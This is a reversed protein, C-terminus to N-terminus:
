THERAEKSIHLIGLFKSVLQKRTELFPVHTRVIDLHQYHVEVPLSIAPCRGMVFAAQLSM